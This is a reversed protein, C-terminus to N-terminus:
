KFRKQLHFGKLEYGMNMYFKVADNNHVYCNLESANCGISIAYKHIWDFLLKGIGKGQYDPHIIVNDAEVHKGIYYKVLIWVGSIGILKDGDYVGVCIYNNELMAPIRKELDVEDVGNKLLLLFPIITRIEENPILRVEIGKM